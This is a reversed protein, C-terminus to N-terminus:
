LGKKVELVHDAIQKELLIQLAGVAEIKQHLAGSQVGPESMLDVVEMRKDCIQMCIGEIQKQFRTELPTFWKQQDRTLQLDKTTSTAGFHGKLSCLSCSRKFGWFGALTALSVIATLLILKKM